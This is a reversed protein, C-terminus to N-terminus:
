KSAKSKAQPKRVRKRRPLDKSLDVLEESDDDRAATTQATQTNLENAHRDVLEDAGHFLPADMMGVPRFPIGLGRLASEISARAFASASRQGQKARGIEIARAMESTIRVGLLVVRNSEM